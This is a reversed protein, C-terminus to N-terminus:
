QGVGVWVWAHITNADGEYRLKGTKVADGNTVYEALCHGCIEYEGTDSNFWAGSYTETGCELCHPEVIVEGCECYIGSSEYYDGTTLGGRLMEGTDKWHQYACERCHQSCEGYYVVAHGFQSVPFFHEIDSRVGVDYPSVSGRADYVIGDYGLISSGQVMEGLTAWYYSTANVTVNLYDGDESGTTFRSTWYRGLNTAPAVIITDVTHMTTEM